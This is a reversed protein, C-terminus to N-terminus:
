ANFVPTTFHQLADVMKPHKIVFHIAPAQNKSIIVRTDELTRIQINRFAFDKATRITYGPHTKAFDRSQALHEQYEEYTYYVTNEIFLDTLSLTMPSNTFEERSLEPVTDTITSHLLINEALKRQGEAHGLILDRAM